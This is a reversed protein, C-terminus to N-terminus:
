DRQALPGGIYPQPETVHVCVGEFCISDGYVSIRRVRAEFEFELSMLKM